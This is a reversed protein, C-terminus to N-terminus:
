IIKTNKNFYYINTNNSNNSTPIRVTLKRIVGNVRVEVVFEDKYGRAKNSYDFFIKKKPWFIYIKNM